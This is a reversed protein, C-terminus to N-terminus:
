LTFDRSRGVLTFSTTARNARALHIHASHEIRQKALVAWPTLPIHQGM